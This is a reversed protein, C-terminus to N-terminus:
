ALHRAAAHHPLTRITGHCKPQHGGGTTAGAHIGSLTHGDLLSYRFIADYARHPADLVTVRGYGGVQVALMPLAIEEADFAALLAQELRNAQSQVSDLLVTEVEAGDLLRNETAYAGGEYTPPFVKDGEGGAPTLKLRSRIATVGGILANQLTDVLQSADM